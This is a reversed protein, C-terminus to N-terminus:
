ATALMRQMELSSDHNVNMLAHELTWVSGCPVAWHSHSTMLIIISQVQMEGKMVPEWLCLSFVRLGNRSGTTVGQSVTCCDEGRRFIIWPATQLALYVLLLHTNVLSTDRKKLSFCGTVGTRLQHFISRNASTELHCSFATGWVLSAPRGCQTGAFTAEPLVLTDGRPIKHTMFARKTQRCVSPSPAMCIPTSASPFM